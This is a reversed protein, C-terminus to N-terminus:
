QINSFFFDFSVGCKEIVNFLSLLIVFITSLVFLYCKIKQCFTTEELQLHTDVLLWCPMIYTLIPLSTSGILEVAFAIGPVLLACAIASGLIFITVCTFQWFNLDNWHLIQRLVNCCIPVSM